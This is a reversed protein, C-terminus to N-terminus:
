RGVPLRGQTYMVARFMRLVMGQVTPYKAWLPSAYLRGLLLDYAAVVQEYPM